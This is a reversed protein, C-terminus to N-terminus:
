LTPGPGSTKCEKSPEQPAGSLQLHVVRGCQPCRSLMALVQRDGTWRYCEVDKGPPSALNLNRQPALEVGDRRAKKVLKVRGSEYTGRTYALDWDSPVTLNVGQWGFTRYARKGDSARDAAM